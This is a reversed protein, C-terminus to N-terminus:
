CDDTYCGMYPDFGMDLDLTPEEDYFNLDSEEEDEKVLNDNDDITVGVARLTYEITDNLVDGAWDEFEEESHFWPGGHQSPDMLLSKVYSYVEDFTKM